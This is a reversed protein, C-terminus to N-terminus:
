EHTQSGKLPSVNADDLPLASAANMVSKKQTFAFILAGSFVIFFLCISITGFVGIGGIDSIFQNIM